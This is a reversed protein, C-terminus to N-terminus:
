GSLRANACQPAPSGSLAIDAGGVDAGAIALLPNILVNVLSGPVSTDFLPKVLAQLVASTLTSLQGATLSVSVWNLLTVSIHGPASLTTDPVISIGSSTSPYFTDFERPPVEIEYGVVEGHSLTVTARVSANFTVRVNLGLLKTTFVLNSVYWPGITVRALGNRVDLTIGGEDDDGCSLAVLDTETPALSGVINLNNPGTVTTSVPLDFIGGSPISIPYTVPNLSANVEFGLQQTEGAPANAFSDGARGCYTRPGQILSAKVNANALGPVGSAVNMDVLRRGNLLALTGGVLDLVNATLGAGVGGGSSIGLVRAMQVDVGSHAQAALLGLADVVAVEGANDLLEAHVAAFLQKMDVTAEALQSVGGVGLRTAIGDLEVDAQALGKSNLAGVAGSNNFLGVSSALRQFFINWLASDATDVQAAYSGVRYCAGSSVGAYATRSAGGSGPSFALGVAGAADVRVASPPDADDDWTTGDWAGWAVAVQDVEGLVSGANRLLSRSLASTPDDADAEVALQAQTRTGLERALDLAVVDALAQLDRRLVRQMGLDVALSAVGLVLVITVSLFLAVAGHDDRDRASRSRSM